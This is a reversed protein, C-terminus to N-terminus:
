LSNTNRSVLIDPFMQMRANQCNRSTKPHQPTLPSLPTSTAIHSTMALEARGKRIPFLGVERHSM